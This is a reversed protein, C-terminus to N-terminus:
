GALFIASRLGGHRIGATAFVHREVVRLRQGTSVLDAFICVLLKSVRAIATAVIVNCDRRIVAPFRDSDHGFVQVNAFHNWSGIILVIVVFYFTVTVIVIGSLTVLKSAKVLPCLHHLQRAAAVRFTTGIKDLFIM